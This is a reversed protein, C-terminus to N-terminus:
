KLLGHDKTVDNQKAVTVPSLVLFKAWALRGHGLRLRQASILISHWSEILRNLECGLLMDRKQFPRSSGEIDMLRDSSITLKTSSYRDPLEIRDSRLTYRRKLHFDRYTSTIGVRLYLLSDVKAFIARSHGTSRTALLNKM